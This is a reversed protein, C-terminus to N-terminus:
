PYETVPQHVNHPGGGRSLTADTGSENTPRAESCQLYRSYWSSLSPPVSFSLRHSKNGYWKELEGEAHVLHVPICM